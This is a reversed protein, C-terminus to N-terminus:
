RLALCIAYSNDTDLAGCRPSRWSSTGGPVSFCDQLRAMKGLSLAQEKKRADDLSTKLKQALSSKSLGASLLLCFRELVTVPIIAPGRKQLEGHSLSRGLM